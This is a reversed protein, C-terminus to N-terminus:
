LIFTFFVRFLAMITEHIIIILLLIQVSMKNIHKRRTSITKGETKGQKELRLAMHNIEEHLNRYLQEDQFFTLCM